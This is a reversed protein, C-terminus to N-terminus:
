AAWRQLFDEDLHGTKVLIRAGQPASPAHRSGHPSRLWSGAPYVGHEDEFQGSLVLIEEGGWHTHPQFVTGPAWDVLATHQAGRSHLPMVRLGPVLGPRWEGAQTDILVSADDGPQFQRLKVFLTCGGASRPGHRSGDPNRLYTGPGHDGREDTFVGDLVLIEEGDPHEHVPFVSGPAYRVFSTARAAEDGVRDLMRRAVGPSPSPQWPTDDPRIVVRQTFDANLRM